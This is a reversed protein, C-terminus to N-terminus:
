QPAVKIFVVPGPAAPGDVPSLGARRLAEFVSASVANSHDYQVILGEQGNMIMNGLGIEVKAGPVAALAGALANAFRVPEGPMFPIISVRAGPQAVSRIIQVEEPGIHRGVVPVPLVSPTPAPPQAAAEVAVHRRLASRIAEALEGLKTAVDESEAPRHRLAAFEFRQRSKLLALVAPDHVEGPEIHAVDIYHFPFILDDRGLEQERERFRMVERCCMESELFAPTVIAILFSSEGLAKYIEKLWDAGMPIAAVDVFIQVSQRGILLQLEDALRRRLASLRRDSHADDSRAYSWFGIPKLLEAV